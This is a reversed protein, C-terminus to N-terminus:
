HLTLYFIAVEFIYIKLFLACFNFFMFIKCKMVVKWLEARLVCVPPALFTNFGLAIHEILHLCIVMVQPFIDCGFLLLDQSFHTQLKVFYCKIHIKNYVKHGRPTLLSHPALSAM